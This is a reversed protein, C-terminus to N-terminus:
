VLAARRAARRHRVIDNTWWVALFALTGITLAAGWGSFVTSRVTIQTPPGIPLRGDESSLTVIMAFTGTARTVVTFRLTQNGPALTVVSQSGNPFLAKGSPASLTVHVRVAQGTANRFTLPIQVHRATVTVTDPQLLTIRDLFKSAAEDIVSLEETAEAADLDTSLAFSCRESAGIVGPDNPGVLSRFSDLAAHAQDYTTRDIGVPQAPAAPQLLRITPQGTTGPAVRPCTTSTGASRRPRCSRTARSTERLVTAVVTPDPTWDRATAM